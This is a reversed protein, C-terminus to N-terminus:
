GVSTEHDEVFLIGLEHHEGDYLARQVIRIENNLDLVELKCLARNKQLAQYFDQEGAIDEGNVRVIVEGVKIGMAEAPSKPLVGLVISGNKRQTFFFPLRADELRQSISIWERGVIAVLAIFVTFVPFFSAPIALVATVIGLGLVRKGTFEVSQKPHMAKMRQFFGISFPVFFFYFEQGNINLLPWWSFPASFGESPILLFLPVLWLRQSIHSGVPLGRKSKFIEPSTARSGYKWILYGEAIVLLALLIALSSLNTEGAESMWRTFTDSGAERPLFLSVIVALGIIYSPTLWRFTWPGSLIFTLVGILVIMGIPVVVGVAITIISLLLGIALGPWFLFRLEYIFDFVRIRFHKRERKVRALGIFYTVLIAIYTLPHLFLRCLGLLIEKLIEV